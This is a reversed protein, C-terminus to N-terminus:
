PMMVAYLTLSYSLDVISLVSPPVTGDKLGHITLVHVSKPFDKQLYSNDWSAFEEVHEPRIIGVVPKRAVTVKWEYYGQADFSPKYIPDRDLPFHILRSCQMKLSLVLM